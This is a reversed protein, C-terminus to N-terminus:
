DDGWFEFKGRSLIYNPDLTNKIAKLAKYYEPTFADVEVMIRSAMEGM